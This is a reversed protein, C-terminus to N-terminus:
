GDEDETLAADCCACNYTDDDYDPHEVGSAIILLGKDALPQEGNYPALKKGHHDDAGPWPAGDGDLEHDLCFACVDFLSSGQGDLLEDLKRVAKDTAAETTIRPM